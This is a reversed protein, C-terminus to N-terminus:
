HGAPKGTTKGGEAVNVRRKPLYYTIVHKETRKPGKETRKPGKETRKPEKRDKETRKPGKRHKYRGTVPHHM